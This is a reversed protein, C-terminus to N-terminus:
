RNPSSCMQKSAHCCNPWKIPRMDLRMPKVSDRTLVFTNRRGVAGIVLDIPVLYHTHESRKGNVSCTCEHQSQRHSSGLWSWFMLPTLSRWTASSGFECARQDATINGQKASIAPRKSPSPQPVLVPRKLFRDMLNFTLLDINDIYTVITCYCLTLHSPLVTIAYSFSHWTIRLNKTIKIIRQNNQYKRVKTPRLDFLWIPRYRWSKIYTMVTFGSCSKPKFVSIESYIILIIFYYCKM